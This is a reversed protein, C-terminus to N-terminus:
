QCYRCAGGVPGTSATVTSRHDPQAASGAAQAEPRPAPQPPVPQDRRQQQERRRQPGHHERRVVRCQDERVADAVQLVCLVEGVPAPRDVPQPLAAIGQQDDRDHQQMVQPDDRQDLMQDPQGRGHEDIRYQDAEADPGPQGRHGGDRDQEIRQLQNELLVYQGIGPGHEQQHRCQDDQDPRLCRRVPVRTRAPPWRRRAPQQESHGHREPVFLQDHDDRGDDVQGHGDPRPPAQDLPQGHQGAAEQDRHRGIQAPEVGRVACGSEGAEVTREQVAPHGVEGGAGPQVQGAVLLREAGGLGRGLAGRVEVGPGRLRRLPREARRRAHGPILHHAVEAQPDQLM